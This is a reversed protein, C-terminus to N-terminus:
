SYAALARTSFGPWWDVAWQDFDRDCLFVCALDAQPDVWVFSGSMGFHGFTEPSNEPSTWHPNKPGKVECGYGWPHPRYRGYVPLVGGIEPLVPTSALRVAEPKLATPRLLEQALLILDALPGVLGRSPLGELRVENMGLPGLFRTELEVAFPNGSVAELHEAARDIGYNSYIRHRGPKVTTAASDFQYGSAHCLLHGLTSGPPGAPDDLSVVGDLCADLITLATAVKTVSAWRYRTDPSHTFAEAAVGVPTIVAAAVSEAPCNRVEEALDM